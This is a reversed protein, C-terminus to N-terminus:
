KWTPKPKKLLSSAFIIYYLFMWLEFLLFYPFLDKEDLTDTTKKYMIALLICVLVFGILAVQWNFFIAALITVPVFLFQAMAYLGLLFKHLPKYYKSTTYHRNKQKKWQEFSEASESLTFTDKDLSIKVNTPTAAMNIFLDDDGGPINNHSSFGKHRFFIAKKYSLNRGVGMYTYGALAYSMYQLASHFTEWRILKNLMGSRKTYAGYGLVIETDDEYVDQIKDIWHESAPVCDADTLLVIEHKATKIGVSLPFKKGPIMKAEQHLEVIQLHKFDKQLAELLYKTDDYSNDNVLIIEHTANYNQVLVGPLNKALNAAEDRACIIVSVANSRYFDKTVPKYFALRKFFFLIYFIRIAVLLLFLIGLFVPVFALFTSFNMAAFINSKKAILVFLALVKSM